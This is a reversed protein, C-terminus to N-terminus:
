SGISALPGAESAPFSPSSRATKGASNASIREKMGHHMGEKRLCRPRRPANRRKRKRSPQSVLQRGRPGTRNRGGEKRKETATVEKGQHQQGRASKKKRRTLAASPLSFAIGRASFDAGKRKMGEKGNKNNLKRGGQSSGWRCDGAETSSNRREIVFISAPKKSTVRCRWGGKRGQEEVGPKEKLRFGSRRGGAAKAGQGRGRAESGSCANIRKGRRKGTPM